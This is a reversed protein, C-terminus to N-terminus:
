NKQSKAFPTLEGHQIFFIEFYLSLDSFYLNERVNQYCIRRTIGGTPTKRFISGKKAAQYQEIYYYSALGCFTRVETVNTPQPWEVIAAVKGPNCEIGSASVV